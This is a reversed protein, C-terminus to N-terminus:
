SLDAVKEAHRRIADVIPGLTYPERFPPCVAVMATEPRQRLFEELLRTKGIGAEGAVVILGPRQDLAQNLVALDRDRGVLHPVALDPRRAPAAREATGM